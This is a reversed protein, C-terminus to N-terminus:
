NEENIGPLHPKCYNFCTTALPVSKLSCNIYNEKIALSLIKCRELM